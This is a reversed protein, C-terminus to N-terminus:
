CGKRKSKPKKMELAGQFSIDVIKEAYAQNINEADMVYAVFTDRLIYFKTPWIM